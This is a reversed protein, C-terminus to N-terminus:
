AADNLQVSYNLRKSPTPPNARLYFCGGGESGEEDGTTSALTAQPRDLLVVPPLSCHHRTVQPIESYIEGEPPDGGGGGEMRNDREQGAESIEVM